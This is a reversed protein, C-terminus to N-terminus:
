KTRFAFCEFVEPRRMDLYRYKLRTEENATNAYEDLQFPFPDSTNLITLAHVIVEIKGTPMTPNITGEPRSEVQGDVQIVFENRLSGARDFITHHEPKFVIQVLGTRDRLDIFIVGGHDRRRHVWGCLKVPQHLFKETVEGCFHSRMSFLQPM